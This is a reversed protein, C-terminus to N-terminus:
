SPTETVEHSMDVPLATAVGVRPRGKMKNWFPDPRENQSLVTLSRPEACTPADPTVQFFSGVGPADIPELKLPLWSPMWTSFEPDMRTVFDCKPPLSRSPTLIASWLVDAWIEVLLALLLPVVPNSTSCSAPVM